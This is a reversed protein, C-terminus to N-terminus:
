GESKQTSRLATGGDHVLALCDSEQTPRSTTGGGDHMLM